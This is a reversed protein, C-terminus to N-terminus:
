NEKKIARIVFDVIYERHKSLFKMYEDKSLNLVSTAIPRVIFPFAMLSIVSLLFDSIHVSHITGKAEEEKIRKTLKMFVMHPNKGSFKENLKRPNAVLENLVFNPFDPNETLTEFYAYIWKRVMEFFPLDSDMVQFIREFLITFAEEFITDFLKEKSRFYYNVMAVNVGSESAIDRITTGKLGKKVFLKRAEDIIKVQVETYETNM